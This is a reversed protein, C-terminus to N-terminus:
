LLNSEKLHIYAVFEVPDDSHSDYDYEHTATLFTDYKDDERLYKEVAVRMRKAIRIGKGFCGYHRRREPTREACFCFCIGGRPSEDYLLVLLTILRDILFVFGGAVLVHNFAGLVDTVSDEQQKIFVKSVHDNAFSLFLGTLLFWKIYNLGQAYEPRTKSTLSYCSGKLVCRRYTTLCKNNQNKNTVLQNIKKSELIACTYVYLKDIGEPSKLLMEYQLFKTYDNVLNENKMLSCLLDHNNQCIFVMKQELKVLTELNRCYLVSGQDDGILKYRGFSSNASFNEKLQITGNAVPTVASAVTGRLNGRHPGGRFTTM